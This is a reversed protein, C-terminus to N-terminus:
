ETDRMYAKFVHHSVRKEVPPLEMYNGYFATLWVDYGVPVPYEKGEFEKKIFIDFVSKDCLMRSVATFNGVFKADTNVYKKSNRVIQSAFYGKPIYQFIYHMLIKPIRKYWEKSRFLNFQIINFNALRDRRNYQRDASKPTPTVDYVFLDINVSLRIGNEDPEFLITRTDLIKAYPYYCDSQLENCIVKYRYNEKNFLSIFRNFDGRLMGIDIDDDWPIYGRHRIAGLLTGSDLWYNVKNKKCFSDVCDLIEIQIKKLENSDIERM